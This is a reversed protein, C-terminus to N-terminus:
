EEGLFEKVAKVEGGNGYDGSMVWEIDHLAHQLFHLKKFFRQMLEFMIPDPNTGHLPCYEHYYYYKMEHFPEDIKNYLYELAGGSM